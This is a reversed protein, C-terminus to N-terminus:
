TSIVETHQILNNYKSLFNKLDNNFEETNEWHPIHGSEKYVILDCNDINGKLYNAGAISVFADFEGQLILTPVKIQPLIERLDETLITELNRLGSWTPTQLSLSLSWDMIEKSVEKYFTQEMIFKRYPIRETAERQLFSQAVEPPVGYSWDDSNTFRPAGPGVLVLQLLREGITAAYKIALAGGFSWGVLTVNELNLSEMLCLLDKSHTEYSYDSLPKDSKGHGRLDVSITRYDTALATVQPDWFEHCLSWGHAFVVPRGIGVEEYFIKTGDFSEIYAM